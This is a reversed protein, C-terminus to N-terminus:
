SKGAAEHEQDVVDGGKLWRVAVSYALSRLPRLPYKWMYGQVLEGGFGQKYHKIGEQKSGPKPHIRVGQFDFRAVGMDRFQRMAEWHLLHMSGLVPNLRSGAYCNYACAESFPAVMCGQVVGEHEAVFIKVYKGFSRIQSDFEAQSKCPAESRKLTEAILAYSADLYQAGSKIEVGAAQAKRINQRFTKRIGGMLVAEPQSLDNVFTGYAAAAAGDPHARFIATAAGPIVMDAAGTSRFHAVASNLFSKEEELSLEGELAITAVRFRIMRFGSKRVVSYPLVCRLVGAANVGGLWHHEDGLAKLFPEYAYISFAPRWDIEMPMATLTSRVASENEDVDSTSSGIQSPTASVATSNQDIM